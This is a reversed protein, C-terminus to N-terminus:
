FGRFMCGIRWLLVMEILLVFMGLCMGFHGGSNGGGVGGLGATGGWSSDRAGWSQDPATTCSGDGRLIGYVSGRRDGERLDM